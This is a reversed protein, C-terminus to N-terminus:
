FCGDAYRRIVDEEVSFIREPRTDFREGLEYAQRELPIGDYGGNELFGRVYLLAFKKLGLVRYQVVHVLEHFLTSDDLEDPYAVVDMLTIAGISSMELMGKIRFLRVLPYLLPEPMTAQVLLTQSLVEDPFFGRLSTVLDDRMPAARPILRRRHHAIYRAAMWSLLPVLPKILHPIPAVQPM